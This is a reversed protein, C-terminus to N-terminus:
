LCFHRAKWQHTFFLVAPYPNNYDKRSNQKMKNRDYGKGNPVTRTVPNISWTTRQLSHYRKQEKKSKKDLPIYKNM